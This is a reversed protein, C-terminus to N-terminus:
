LPRPWSRSMEPVCGRHRCLARRLSPVPGRQSAVDAVFRSRQGGRAHHRVARRGEHRTRDRGSRVTGSRMRRQLAGILWRAVDRELERRAEGRLLVTMEEHLAIVAIPDNVSRSADLRLRLEDLAQERSRALEGQLANGEPDDPFEHLVNELLADADDWRKQTLALRIEAFGTARRDLSGSQNTDPRATERRELAVAIRDLAPVIRSEIMRTLRTLSGAVEAVNHDFDTSSQPESPRASSDDAM